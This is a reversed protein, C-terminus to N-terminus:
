VLNEISCRFCTFIEYEEVIQINDCRNPSKNFFLVDIVFTDQKNNREIVYNACWGIRRLIREKRLSNELFDLFKWADRSDSNDNMDLSIFM